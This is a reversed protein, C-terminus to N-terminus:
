RRDNYCGGGPEVTYTGIEDTVARPMNAYLVAFCVLILRRRYKNTFAAAAAAATGAVGAFCGRRRSCRLRCALSFWFSLRDAVTPDERSFPARRTISQRLIGSIRHESHFMM